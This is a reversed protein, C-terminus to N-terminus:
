RPIHRRFGDRFAVLVAGGVILPVAFVASLGPIEGFFLFGAAVAWILALYDFPALKSAEEYKFSLTMAIHAFGGFIGALILVALEYLSPSSWGLPLTLLGAVACTLAFYFAIAGANESKALNRIQIVAFATLVATIIGIAVGTLYNEDIEPATMEPVVLVVTGAIGMCIGIWRSGTVTEGLFMGALVAVLAPSLYSIIYAEAVPLYALAAFSGFMAACGTLCRMLHGFPKKTYLGSPFEKTFMLYAVLPFLAFFSRFFVIQGTPADSTALKVCVVMGAFLIGSLVRLAIALNSQSM